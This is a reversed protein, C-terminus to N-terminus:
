FNSHSDWTATALAVYSSWYRADKFFKIIKLAIGSKIDIIMSGKIVEKLAAKGEM